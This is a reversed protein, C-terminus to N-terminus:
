VNWGNAGVYRAVNLYRPVEMNSLHLVRDVEIESGVSVMFTLTGCHPFEGSFHIQRQILTPVLNKKWSWIQVHFSHESDINGYHSVDPRCILLPAIFLELCVIFFHSNNM